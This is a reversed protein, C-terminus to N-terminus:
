FEKLLPCIYSISERDTFSLEIDLQTFKLHCDPRTAENRHYRTIPVYKHMSGVMLLQKFQQPNQFLSYFKEAKRCPVVFEQTGGLTRRFLTPTEVEVFGGHNVLYERMKMLVKSLTRYQQMESFRLHLYRYELRLNEKARNFTRIEMPLTKLSENFTVVSKMVVEIHGTLM